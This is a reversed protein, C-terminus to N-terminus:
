ARQRLAPPAAVVVRDGGSLQADELADHVSAWPDALLGTAVGVSATIRVGRNTELTAIGDRIRYAVAAAQESPTSPLLVGLTEDDVRGVIDTTRVLPVVVDAAARLMTASQRRAPRGATAGRADHDLAILLISSSPRRAGAGDGIWAFVSREFASPCLTGTVPDRSRIAERLVGFMSRQQSM